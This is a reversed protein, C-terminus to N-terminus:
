DFIQVLDVSAMEHDQSMISEGDNLGKITGAALAELANVACQRRAIRRTSGSGEALTVDRIKVVCRKVEDGETSTVEYKPFAHYKKQSNLLLQCVPDEQFRNPNAFRNLETEMLRLAIERAKDLRMGQDVVVAGLISEFLDGLVKPVTMLKCIDEECDDDENKLAEACKEIEKELNRCNMWFKKHINLSVVVRAFLDNSLAPARLKTLDGPGFQPYKCFFHSLILFGIIADGLYEYRQYSPYRGNGYSGHTLAVVLHRRNQFKYAIIKEVDEVITSLHRTDNGSPDSPADLVVAGELEIPIGDRSLGIGLASTGRELLGNAEMFVVATAMGGAQYHAGILAEVCDALVKESIAWKKKEHSGWFFPWSKVNSPRSSYAVCNHLELKLAADALKGNSVDIDRADSLDGEGEHPKAAFNAMTDIVKLVVDGLFESREYCLDANGKSVNNINPQLARAFSLFSIPKISKERWCKRLTLFTQWRPLLCTIYCAYLDVPVVRLLEPLLVFPSASAQMLVERVSYGELVRQNPDRVLTDHKSEYYHSFSTYEDKLYGDPRSNAFLSDSLEGTIYTRKGNEHSSCVILYAMECPLRIESYNLPGHRWGYSLLSEVRIWDIDSHKGAVEILPLLFFAPPSLEEFREEMELAFASGPAKGRICMQIARVYKSARGEDMESWGIKGDYTLRFLPNGSPCQIAVLDEEELPDRMLLGYRRPTWTSYWKRSSLDEELHVSYIHIYNEVPTGGMVGAEEPGVARAQCVDMKDTENLTETGKSVGQQVGYEFPLTPKTNIECLRVRKHKKSAKSEVSRHSKKKRRTGEEKEGEGLSKTSQDPGARKNMESNGGSKVCLVRKSRPLKKPLLYDDVEGIEYLKKYADLSARRKAATENMQPEDCLGCDIPVRSDLWLIATLLPGQSGIDYKPSSLERVGLNHAKVRLYRSLLEVSESATVRAQTKRSYLTKEKKAEGRLSDRFEERKEETVYGGNVIHSMVSAGERVLYVDKVNKECLENVFSVYRAGRKRARGRGQVYATPSVAHDFAIVLRCAPIDIGEEVVNTAVLVGFGGERFTEITQNMEAKTMRAFAGTQNYGVIPRAKLESCGVEQFTRTILISLALTSIREHTFVIARFREQMAGTVGQARLEEHRCRLFEFYLLDLLKETKSTLGTWNEPISPYQSLLIAHTSEPNINRRLCFRTAVETAPIFGLHTNIRSLVQLEEESLHGDSDCDSPLDSQSFSLSVAELVSSILDCDLGDELFRVDNQEDSDPQEDRYPLIFEAPKPVLDEIEHRVDDSITVVTADLTAEVSAMATLCTDYKVTASKNKVPTATMGFVHPKPTAPDIAHYFETFIRRYPHGKTAHHAEDVVLLCTNQMTILAHRLLNLFIQATMVLVDHTLINAVWRSPSWYDVGCDGYFCGVRYESSLYSRLMEAQQVALPVRDVLFVVVSPSDFKELRLTPLNDVSQSSNPSISTPLSKDTTQDLEDPKLEPARSRADLFHKILMAAILTKGAGTQLCAIVNQLCARQFLEQQYQRPKLTPLQDPPEAPQVEPENTLSTDSVDAMQSPNSAVPLSLMQSSSSSDSASSSKEPDDSKRNSTADEALDSDSSSLVEDRWDVYYACDSDMEDYFFLPSVANREM